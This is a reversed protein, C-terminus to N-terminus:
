IETQVILRQFTVNSVHTPFILCSSPTKQNFTWENGCCQVKIFAVSLLFQIKGHCVISNKVSVLRIFKTIRLCDNVLGLKLLENKKKYEAKSPAIKNAM